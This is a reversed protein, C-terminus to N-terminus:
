PKYDFNIQKLVALADKKLPTVRNLQHAESFLYTISSAFLPKKENIRIKNIEGNSSLKKLEEPSLLSKNAYVHIYHWRPIGILQDVLVFDTNNVFWKYSVQWKSVAPLNRDSRNFIVWFQIYPHTKLYLQMRQTDNYSFPRMSWEAIVEVGLYYRLSLYIGAEPFVWTSNDYHGNHRNIFRAIDELRYDWVNSWYVLTTTAHISPLAILFILLLGQWRVKHRLRYLLFGLALISLYFMTANGLFIVTPLNTPMRLSLLTRIFNSLELENTIQRLFYWLPFGLLLIEPIRNLHKLTLYIYVLASFWWLLITGDTFYLFLYNIPDKVTIVKLFSLILPILIISLFPLMLIAKETLDNATLREKGSKVSYYLGKGCIGLYPPYIGLYYYNLQFQAPLFIFLVTFLWTLFFAGLAINREEKEAFFYAYLGIFFFPLNLWFIADNIASVLQEYLTYHTPNEYRWSVYYTFFLWTYNIPPIEQDRGFLEGPTRFPLGLSDVYQIWALFPFFALIIFAIFLTSFTVTKTYKQWLDASEAEFLKIDYYRQLTKLLLKLGDTLFLYILLTIALSFMTMRVADRDFIAGKLLLFITWIALWLGILILPFTPYIEKVLQYLLGNKHKYQIILTPLFGVLFLATAFTFGAAFTDNLLYLIDNSYYTLNPDILQQWAKPTIEQFVPVFRQFITKGIFASAIIGIIGTIAVIVIFATFRDRKETNLLNKEATEDYLLTFYITVSITAGLILFLLQIPYIKIIVGIIASFFTYLLVTIKIEKLYREKNITEKIKKRLLEWTEDTSYFFIVKILLYIALAPMILLGQWVKAFINIFIMVASLILYFYAKIWNQTEFANDIAKITVVGLLASLFVIFPDIYATRSYFSLFFSAGVLIGIIIGTEKDKKAHSTMLYSTLALLGGGVAMPLKAALTSRGFIGILAAVVWFVLPPKDFLSVNNREGYLPLFFQGTKYMREAVNVLWAEDWNSIDHLAYVNFIIGFFSLLLCTIIFQFTTNKSIENYKTIIYKSTRNQEAKKAIVRKLSLFFDKVYRKKKEKEVYIVM